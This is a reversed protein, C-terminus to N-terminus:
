TQSGSMSSMTFRPSQGSFLTCLCAGKGTNEHHPDCSVLSMTQGVQSRMFDVM